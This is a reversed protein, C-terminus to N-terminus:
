CIKIVKEKDVYGPNAPMLVIKIDEIEFIHPKLYDSAILKITQESKFELGIMMNVLDEINGVVFYSNDLQLYHEYNYTYQGSIPDGEGTGDCEKCTTENDCCPCEIKGWGDCQHCDDHEQVKPVNSLALILKSLEFELPVLRKISKFVFSTDPPNVSLDDPNIGEPIHTKPIMLIVHANTAGYYDGMDLIKTIRDGHAAVYRKLLEIKNM